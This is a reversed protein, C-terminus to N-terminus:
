ALVVYGVAALFGVLVAAENQRSDAVYWLLMGVVVVDFFGFLM